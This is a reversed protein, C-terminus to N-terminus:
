DLLLYVSADLSPMSRIWVKILAMSFAMDCVLWCMSSRSWWVMSAVICCMLSIAVPSARWFRSRSMCQRLHDSITCPRFPWSSSSASLVLAALALKACPCRPMPSVATVSRADHWQNLRLALLLMMVRLWEFFPDLRQLCQEVSNGIIEDVYVLCQDWQFGRLVNQILKEFIAPAYALGFPIVNIEYLGQSTNFRTNEIDEFYMRKEM